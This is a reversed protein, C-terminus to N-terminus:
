ITNLYLMFRAFVFLMLWGALITNVAKPLSKQSLYNGLWLLSIPLLIVVYRFQVSCFYPYELWFNMWSAVVVFSLVLAFLNFAYDRGLRFRCLSFFSLVLLAALVMGLVYLVFSWIGQAWTWEGFLATKLLAFFVNPEIQGARVDAFPVLLQSVSFLREGLTYQSMDQLVVDQPPPVLPLHYYLLFWGWCFGLVVGLGIVTFQGWLVRSLKNQAQILRCLGLIAVAPLLMLVSFKILGAILFLGSVALVDNWAGSLYWKYGTYIIATMLFYVMADNNVLNALIGQMPFFCFLAFIGARIHNKFLFLGLLRWFLIAAGSVGFLSVYRVYDFGEAQTLGFGMCIKTVLAAILGWLPPQFYVSQLYTEPASIFFDNQMFYDAHMVFNFYDYQRMNGWSATIYWVNMLFALAFICDVASFERRLWVGWLLVVLLAGLLPYPLFIQWCMLGFCVLFMGSLNYHLKM